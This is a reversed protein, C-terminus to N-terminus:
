HIFETHSHADVIDFDEAQAITDDIWQVYESIRCFGDPDGRACPHAWSTVGILWGEHVLPGGLIIDVTLVGRWIM